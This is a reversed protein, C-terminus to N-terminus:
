VLTVVPVEVAAVAGPDAVVGCLWVVCAVCLAELLEAAELEAAV